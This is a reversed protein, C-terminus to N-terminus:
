VWSNLIALTLLRPLGDAGARDQLAQLAAQAAPLPLGVARAADELSHGLVLRRLLARELSSLTFTQPYSAHTM